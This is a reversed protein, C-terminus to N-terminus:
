KKKGKKAVEENEPNEVITRNPKDVVTNRLHPPFAELFKRTYEDVSKSTEFYENKIEEMPLFMAQYFVEEGRQPDGTSTLGGQPEYGQNVLENVQKSLLQLNYHSLVRYSDKNM